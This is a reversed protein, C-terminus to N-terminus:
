TLIQIIIQRRIILPSINYQFLALGVTDFEEKESEEELERRSCLHCLRNERIYISYNKM